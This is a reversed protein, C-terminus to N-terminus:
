WSSGDWLRFKPTSTGNLTDYVMMADTAGDAHAVPINPEIFDRAIDIVNHDRQARYLVDVINGERIQLFFGEFPLGGLAVCLVTYYIFLIRFFSSYRNM